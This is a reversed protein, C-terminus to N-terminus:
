TNVLECGCFSTKEVFYLDCNWLVTEALIDPTELDSSVELFLVCSGGDDALEYLSADTVFTEGTMGEYEPITPGAVVGDLLDCALVTEQKESFTLKLIVKFMNMHQTSSNQQM